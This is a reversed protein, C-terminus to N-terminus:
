APLHPALAELAEVQREPAYEVINLDWIVEDVGLTAARALDDKVSAPNWPATEPQGIMPGARVM